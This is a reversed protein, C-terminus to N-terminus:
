GAEDWTRESRGTESPPRAYELYFNWSGNPQVLVKGLRLSIPLRWAEADWNYQAQLDNTQFYWGKGRSARLM